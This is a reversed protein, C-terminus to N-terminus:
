EKLRAWQRIDAIEQVSLPEGSMPMAQIDVQDHIDWKQERTFKNLKDGVILTYGGSSKTTDSHCTICRSKFIATVKDEIAKKDNDNTNTKGNNTDSPKDVGESKLKDILKSVVRTATKESIREALKEIEAESLIESPEAYPDKVAYYYKLGLYTVPFGVIINGYTTDYKTGIRNDHYGKYSIGSSRSYSSSNTGRYHNQPWEALAYSPILLAILVLLTKKMNIEM